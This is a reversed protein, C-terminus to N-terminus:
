LQEQYGGPSETTAASWGSPNCDGMILAALLCLVVLM